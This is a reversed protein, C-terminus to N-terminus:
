RTQDIRRVPASNVHVWKRGLDRSLLMDGSRGRVWVDAGQFGISVPDFPQDIRAPKWTKGADISMEVKKSVGAQRLRWRFKGQSSGPVSVAYAVAPSYEPQAPVTSLRRLMVEDEMQSTTGAFLLALAAAAAIFGVSRISNNRIRASRHQAAFFLVARCSSCEALHLAVTERSSSDLRGEGFSVLCDAGPHRDSPAVETAALRSALQREFRDTM